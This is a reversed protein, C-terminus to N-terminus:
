EIEFDLEGDLLGPLAQEVHVSSPVPLVSVPQENVDNLLGQNGIQETAPLLEPSIMEYSPPVFDPRLELGVSSSRCAVQRGCCRECSKAGRCYSLMEECVSQRAVFIRDGPQLHYNTTTDGLQTIARYCVPLTVRCSCPDTPRALLLDCASAKATLGGAELIADLVTEHGVLPYAGPSNVEGIVYYRQVAQILRINVTVPKPDVVAIARLVIAEAQEQTKSAVVVRGYKGLDITGDAMVQQDAPLRVDSDFDLVEVLVEDGPQLYIAALVEQSLERPLHGRVSTEELVRKTDETMLHAVPYASFGLLSCGPSVVLLLLIALHVTKRLPANM